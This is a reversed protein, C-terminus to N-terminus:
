PFAARQPAALGTSPAATRSRRYAGRFEPHPEVSHGLGLASEAAGLLLVGDPALHGAVRSLVETKVAADFYILVNRLLILDFRGFSPAEEMLNHVRFDVATRLDPLIDWAEGAPRFYQLLNQIPLGRQVEFHSYRGTRGREVMERSIDTALIEVPRGALIRAQRSAIIAISYAEQGAACAASWVRLPERPSAKGAVLRPLITAEILEFPRQDRFFYTENVTMGEVLRVALEGTPNARVRAVLDAGSPLGQQLALASMRADAFYRKETWLATGSRRLLFSQLFTFDADSLLVPADAAPQRAESGSM